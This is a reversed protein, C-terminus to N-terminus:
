KSAGENSSPSSCAAGSDVWARVLAIFESHSGPAPTRDAGPSWAWKVLSDNAMHRVIAALDKGGNRRPDKIQECIQGVSRGQWAMTLPALHWSPDGPVHAADFNADHHCTSCPMGPAGAGSAGRLVLPQHPHMRDTQTPRDGAPHCNMCRPNRLVKAVEEFLAISRAHTDAISAFEGPARLTGAPNAIASELAFCLTALGLAFLLSARRM